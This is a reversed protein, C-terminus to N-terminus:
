MFDDMMEQVTKPRSAEGDEDEDDLEPIVTSQTAPPEPQEPLVKLKHAAKTTRRVAGGPRKSADPSVQASPQKSATPLIPKSSMGCAPEHLPSLRFLHILEPNPHRSIFTPVLLGMCCMASEHRM